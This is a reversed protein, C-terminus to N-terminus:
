LIKDIAEMANIKPIYGYSLLKDNKLWVNKTQVINHFNTSEINNIKSTSSLRDKAYYILEKITKPESNSINIIENYPCNDIVCRIARCADEVHMYDRIHNGSEYLYVDENLKLLNIMYQIANKKRSVKTDSKGIINTLRLIRYKINFTECYSILLQEATRKTISYFGTPNCYANESIPFENTKGYVFWSSIFNFVLTDKDNYEKCFKLVDILKILNTNIDIYPDTYVNYNDITSIFYLINNSKPKHEDKPIIICDNNNKLFESGIFGSSGYISIM